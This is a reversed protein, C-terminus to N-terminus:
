RDELSEAVARRLQDPTFPLSLVCDAGAATLKDIRDPRPDTALALIAPRPHSAALAAVMRLSSDVPYRAGVIAVDCTPPAAPDSHLDVEVFEVDPGQLAFRMLARLSLSEEVLLTRM